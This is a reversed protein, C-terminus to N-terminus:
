GVPACGCPTSTALCSSDTGFAFRRTWIRAAGRSYNGFASALKSEHSERTGSASRPCSIVWSKGKTGSRVASQSTCDRATRGTRDRHPSPDSRRDSSQSQHTTSSGFLRVPREQEAPQKYQCRCDPDNVRHRRWRLNSLVGLYRVTDSVNPEPAGAHNKSQGAGAHRRDEIDIPAPLFLRDRLPNRGGLFCRPGVYVPWLGRLAFAPSLGVFGPSRLDPCQFLGIHM